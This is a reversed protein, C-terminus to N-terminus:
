VAGPKPQEVAGPKPQEVAGPKPQEVAGPKPQEVAVAQHQEVAVPKPQEVAGPPPAVVSSMRIFLVVGGIVLANVALGGGVVWPWMSRTTTGARLRAQAAGRAAQETRRDEEARKLAQLIYSM